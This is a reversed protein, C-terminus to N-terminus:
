CFFYVFNGYCNYYFLQANSTKVLICWIFRSKVNSMQEKLFTTIFCLKDLFATFLLPFGTETIMPYTALSSQDFEFRISHIAFRCHYFRLVSAAGSLRCPHLSIEAVRWLRSAVVMWKTISLASLYIVTCILTTDVRTNGLSNIVVYRRVIYNTAEDSFRIENIQGLVLGILSRRKPLYLPPFRVHIAIQQIDCPRWPQASASFRSTFIYNIQWNNLCLNFNPISKSVAAHSQSHRALLELM